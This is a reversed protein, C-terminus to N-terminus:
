PSLTTTPAPTTSTSLPFADDRISFKVEYIMTTRFLDGDVERFSSQHRLFKLDYYPLSTRNWNTSSRLLETRVKGVLEHHSERAQELVSDTVITTQFLASHKRYEALALSPTSEIPADNPLEAEQTQFLVEIRPTVLESDSASPFVSVGTASNLFSVSADEFHLEFSYLDPLDNARTM